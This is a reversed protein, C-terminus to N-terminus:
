MMPEYTGQLIFYLFQIKSVVIMNIYHKQFLDINTENNPSQIKLGFLNISM